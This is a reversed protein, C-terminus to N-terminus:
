NPRLQHAQHGVAVYAAPVANAGALNKGFFDFSRVSGPHLEAADPALRRGREAEPVQKVPVVAPIGPFHKSVRRLELM